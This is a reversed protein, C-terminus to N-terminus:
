SIKWFEAISYVEPEDGDDCSLMSSIDFDQMGLFLQIELAKADGIEFRGSIMAKSDYTYVTSNLGVILTTPTSTDRLRPKIVVGASASSTSMVIRCDYTGEALTIQNSSLACIGDVDSDETNLLVTNWINKTYTPGGTGTSLTYSVKAYPITASAVTDDVYKKHAISADYSPDSTSDLATDLPFTIRKRDAISFGDVNGASFLFEAVVICNADAALAAAATAYANWEMTNGNGHTYSFALVPNTESLPVGNDLTDNYIEVATTEIRAQSTGDSIEVVMAPINIANPGTTIAGTSVIGAPISDKLRKNLEETTNIMGYPFSITQTGINSGFM